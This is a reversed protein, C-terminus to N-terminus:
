KRGTKAGPDQGNADENLAGAGIADLVHCNENHVM